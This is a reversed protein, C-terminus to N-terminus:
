FSQYRETVTVTEDKKLQFNYFYVISGEAETIPSAFNAAYNCPAPGDLGTIAFGERGYPVSTPGPNGVNQLMLGYPNSGNTSSYPTNGWASDLTGDYDQFYNGTSRANDPDANGYRLLYADKTVGSNNKLAMTIKAYPNTGPVPMITQTLTWAGDSTTREIKVETATHTVTTPPNWNGSDAYAYDYYGVTTSTDCIGYGEDAGGQNLQEIGQPSNFEVINGNVSVCFQLYTAGSGSTFKYTCTQTANPNVADSKPKGQSRSGDTADGVVAKPPHAQTPLQLKQASTSVALLSGLAVLCAVSLAKTHLNM